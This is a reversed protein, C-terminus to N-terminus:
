MKKESAVEYMTIDRSNIKLPKLAAGFARIHDAKMHPKLHDASEWREFLHVVAPDTIDPTFCYAHCGDEKVTEAMVAKAAELFAERDSPEVNFTGAIVLM